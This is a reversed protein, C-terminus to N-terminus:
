KRSIINSNKIVEKDDRLKKSAYKINEGNYEQVAALIINKNDMLRDSVYQINNANYCVATFAIEYDDKLEDSAYQFDYSHEYQIAYSMVEKNNKFGDLVIYFNSAALIAVDYDAQLRSSADAIFGGGCLSSNKELALLLM